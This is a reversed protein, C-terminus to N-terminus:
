LQFTRHLLSSSLPLSNWNQQAARLTLLVNLAICVFIMWLDSHSSPLITAQSKPGSVLPCSLLEMMLIFMQTLFNNCNVENCWQFIYPYKNAIYNFALLHYEVWYINIFPPTPHPQATSSSSWPILNGRFEWQEM